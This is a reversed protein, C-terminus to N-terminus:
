KSLAAVVGTGLATASAMYSTSVACKPLGEEWYGMPTSIFFATSPQRATMAPASPQGASRRYKVEQPVSLSLQAMCAARHCFRCLPLCMM